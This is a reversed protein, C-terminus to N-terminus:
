WRRRWGTSACAPPLRPPRGTATRSLPAAVSAEHLGGASAPRKTTAGTEDIFILKDPDLDLQGDFWVQRAAKV